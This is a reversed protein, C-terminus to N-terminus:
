GHNIEENNKFYSIQYKLFKIKSSLRFSVVALAINAGTAIAFVMDIPVKGM